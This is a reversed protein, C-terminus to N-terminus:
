PGPHVQLSPGMAPTPCSRSCVPGVSSVERCCRAPCRLLPFSWPEAWYTPGTTRDRGAQQSGPEKEKDLGAGMGPWVSGRVVM